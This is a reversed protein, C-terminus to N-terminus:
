TEPQYVDAPPVPVSYVVPAAGTRVTVGPGAVGRAEAPGLGLAVARGVGTLGDPGPGGQHDVHGADGPDGGPGGGHHQVDRRDCGEAWVWRVTYGEPVGGTTESRLGPAPATSALRTTALTEPAPVTLM